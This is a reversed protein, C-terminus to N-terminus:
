QYTHQGSPSSIGVINGPLFLEDLYDDDSYSVNKQRFPSYRLPDETFSKEKINSTKEHANKGACVMLAFMSPVGFGGVTTLLTMFVWALAISVGFTGSLLQGFGPIFNLALIIGACSLGAGVAGSALISSKQASLSSNHKLHNRIMERFCTFVPAANEPYNELGEISAKNKLDEYELAFLYDEGNDQLNAKFKAVRKLLADFLESFDNLFGLLQQKGNNQNFAEESRFGWFDYDTLCLPNTKLYELTNYTSEINWFNDTCFRLWTRKHASNLDNSLANLIDDCVKDSTKYLRANKKDHTIQFQYHEWLKTLLENYLASNREFIEPEGLNLSAIIMLPNKM